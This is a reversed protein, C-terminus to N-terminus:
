SNQYIEDPLDAREKVMLASEILVFKRKDFYSFWLDNNDVGGDHERITRLDPITTGPQRVVLVKSISIASHVFGVLEGNNSIVAAGSDGRKAFWNVSEKLEQIVYFESCAKELSNTPEEM